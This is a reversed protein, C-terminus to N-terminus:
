TGWTNPGGANHGHEALVTQHLIGDHQFIRLEFAIFQREVHLGELSIERRPHHPREGKMSIVPRGNVGIDNAPTPAGSPM